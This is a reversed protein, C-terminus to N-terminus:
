KSNMPIISERIYLAEIRKSGWLIEDKPNPQIQMIYVKRRINKIM